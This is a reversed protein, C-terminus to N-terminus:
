FRRLVVIQVNGQLSCIEIIYEKSRDLGIQYLNWKSLIENIIYKNPKICRTM